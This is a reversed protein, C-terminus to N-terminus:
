HEEPGEDLLPQMAQGLGYLATGIVLLIAAVALAQEGRAQAPGAAIALLVLPSAWPV